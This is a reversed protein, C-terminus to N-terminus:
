VLREQVFGTDDMGIFAVIRLSPVVYEMPVVAELFKHLFEKFVEVVVRYFITPSNKLRFPMTPV